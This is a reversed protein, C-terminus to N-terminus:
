RVRGAKGSPESKSTKNSIRSDPKDVPAPTETTAASTRTVLVFGCLFLGAVFTALSVYFATLPPQFRFEVRHKGPTLYVGRMIYNCRLVTDPKGDVWVKWDPHFRDNLLLVGPAAADANLEIFKPEYRAIEVAGSAQSTSNTPNGAGALPSAVLVTQAPDFDPKRLEDLTATDNTNVQWHTFLNARPLAGTFEFLAYKGNAAPEATLHEPKTVEKIGPKPVLNFTTQVRFRHQAPDFRENLQSLLGAMGLLYRTNTLQWMRVCLYIQTENTPALAQIFAQDFETVRPMQIIDLSQARYYQFHHQLWEIFYVEIFNRAEPDQYDVLYQGSLPAIKAAVRHQYSKEILRDIIPNSAYKQKYNWYVIWPADARALDIVLLLGLSMWAWRARPGAFVGSAILTVLGVSLILFFIFIGVENLSFQAISAALQPFQKEPFGAQELYRILESKSSAYVLWSLLSAAVAVASGLTWKKDLAPASQWWSKLQDKWPKAKAPTKNLYLRWLGELGYGFLVILAMSFPFMFKFPNRMASFYPIAYALRYFPAYRGWALLLSVILLVLWCRMQNQEDPQFASGKRRFSQAIGFMAIVSVLVGAYFGMGSHRTYIVGPTQGVAGWYNSGEASQPLEGYLEPMRYGFLGPIIVRLTEAKPLSAQTAFNWRNTKTQEDQATGVIGKIQTSILDTVTQAAILAACIAMMAVLGVGRGLKKGAPDRTTIERLFAFAATFMSLIAGVDFGEMVGIGVAFGALSGRLVRNQVSPSVLAALAFLNMACSLPWEALGWCAASFTTTNLAAALGGLLCVWPKFRFQRFLVWASLGLIFIGVPEYIKSFLVSGSDPSSDCCLALLLGSVNLPMSPSPTGVWNLAQWVGLLNSWMHGAQAREAGLPGDNSFLIQDSEFSKHFLITLVGLLCLLFVLFDRRGTATPAASNGAVPM